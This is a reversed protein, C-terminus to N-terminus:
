CALFLESNLPFLDYGDWPITEPDVDIQSVVGTKLHELTEKYLKTEIESWDEPTRVTALTLHLQDAPVAKKVKQSILWQYVDDPNLLPRYIWFPTNM